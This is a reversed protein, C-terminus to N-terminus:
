PVPDFGGKKGPRCRLIRKTGLLLGKFGGYKKIGQIMYESCSPSYICTQPTFPSIAGQYFKVM